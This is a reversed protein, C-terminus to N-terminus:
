APRYERFLAIREDFVYFDGGPLPDDVRIVRTAATVTGAGADNGDRGDQDSTV